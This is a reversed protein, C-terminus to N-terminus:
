HLRRLINKEPWGSFASNFELVSRSLVQGRLRRQYYSGSPESVLVQASQRSAEREDHGDASGAHTTLIRVTSKHM